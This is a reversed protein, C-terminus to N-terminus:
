QDLRIGKILKNEKPPKSAYSRNV